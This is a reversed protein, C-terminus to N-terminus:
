KKSASEVLDPVGTLVGRFSSLPEGVSIGDKGLRFERLTREHAGIRQKLISIVQRIEGKAEFYRLLVITDSIYSVDIDARMSGVLGQLTHVLFTAVGMQNLFAFLEHLHLILDREGPMSNLFGNLSDIVVIRTDHQEVDRRIQWIFEGTSLEAPDIQYMCLRGRDIQAQVDMGLSTVRGKAIDLVEDFAYVIARDGRLAAAYAYQMAITSKGVGTPGTLLTASGRGVGGGLMTELAPVGSAVRDTAASQNHEAAILRPFIQVGGFRITYDHCGERYASGRLKIIEVQRRTVGFTRSINSLHLVGHAMSRLQFDHGDTTRDALLLVTTERGAFFQKLALIQRRYRM